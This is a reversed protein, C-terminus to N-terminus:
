LALRKRIGYSNFATEKRRSFFFRFTFFSHFDWVRNYFSIMLIIGHFRDFNSASLSSLSLCVNLSRKCIKRLIHVCTFQLVFLLYDNRRSSHQASPCGIWHKTKQLGLWALGICVWISRIITAIKRQFQRHLCMENSWEDHEMYTYTSYTM